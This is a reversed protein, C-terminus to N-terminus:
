RLRLAGRVYSCRLEALDLDGAPSALVNRTWEDHIEDPGDLKSADTLRPAADSCIALPAPYLIVDYLVIPTVPWYGMELEKGAATLEGLQQTVNPWSIGTQLRAIRGDAGAPSIERKGM